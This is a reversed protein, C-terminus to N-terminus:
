VHNLFINLIHKFLRIFSSITLILFFHVAELGAICAQMAGAGGGEEFCAGM